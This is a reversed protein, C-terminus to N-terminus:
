EVHNNKQRNPTIHQQLSMRDESLEYIRAVSNSFTASPDECYLGLTHKCKGNQCQANTLVSNKKFFIYLYIYM